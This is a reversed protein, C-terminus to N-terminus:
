DEFCYLQYASACSSSTVDMARYDLLDYRGITGTYSSTGITWVNCYVFTGSGYQSAGTWVSGADYNGSAYANTEM